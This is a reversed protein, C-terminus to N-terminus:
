PLGSLMSIMASSVRLDGTIKNNIAMIMEQFRGLLDAVNQESGQLDDKAKSKLIRFHANIEFQAAEIGLNHKAFYTITGNGRARFRQNFVETDFNQFAEAILPRFTPCSCKAISNTITGVDVKFPASACAGHLDIIFRIGNEKVVKGLFDKYRSQLDNNPDETAEKKLFIVYAGTKRGLLIALQSTYADEAKWRQERTRFHKAGHPASILIPITGKVYGYYEDKSQLDDTVAQLTIKKINETVRVGDEGTALAPLCSFSLFMLAIITM